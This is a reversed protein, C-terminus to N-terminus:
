GGLRFRVGGVIYIVHDDISGEGTSIPTGKLGVRGMEGYVAFKRKVWIEAGGGAYWSWGSTQMNFVQAGGPFTTPEDNVTVTIPDNVQVTKFNSRQYSAGGEGFFRVRGAPLGVKGGITAINPSFSNAFRYGPGSGFVELRYPKVYSGTVAIFRNLWYDGGVRFTLPYTSANCIETGVGCAVKGANSFKGVGVSGFLVFGTAMTWTPGGGEREPQANPDLWSGPPKGQRIWVAQNEEPADVVLSTISRISFTGFLERRVCGAAAAPAQWGTELLWVQRAKECVDVFVRVDMETKAKGAKDPRAALLNLPVTAVGEADSTATQLPTANVGVTVSTGPLTRTVIVTQSAAAAALTVILAAALALPRWTGTM